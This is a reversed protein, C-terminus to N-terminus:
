AALEQVRPVVRGQELALVHWVIAPIEREGALWRRVTRPDVGVRRAFASQTWALTALEQRLRETGTM